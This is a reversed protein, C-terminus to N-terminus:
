SALSLTSPQREPLDRQGQPDLEGRARGDGLRRPEPWGQRGHRPRRDPARLLGRHHPCPRARARQRHIRRADQDVTLRRFLQTRKPNTLQITAVTARQPITPPHPPNMAAPLNTYVYKFRHHPHCRHRESRPLARPATRSPVALDPPRVSPRAPRPRTRRSAPPSRVYKWLRRLPSQHQATAYRM